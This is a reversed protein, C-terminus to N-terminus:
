PIYVIKKNEIYLTISGDVIMKEKKLVVEWFKKDKLLLYKKECKERIEKETRKESKPLPKNGKKGILICQQIQKSYDTKYFSIYRFYDENIKKKNLELIVIKHINELDNNKTKDASLLYSFLFTTLCASFLTLKILNKRM